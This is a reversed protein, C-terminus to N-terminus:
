PFAKLHRRPLSAYSQNMLCNYRSFRIQLLLFYSIKVVNDIIHFFIELGLKLLIDSFQM